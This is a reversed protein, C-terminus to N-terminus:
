TILIPSVGFPVRGPINIPAPRTETGGAARGGPFCHLPSEVGAAQWFGRAPLSPASVDQDIGVLHRFRFHAFCCSQGVLLITPRLHEEAWVEIRPRIFNMHAGPILGIKQM